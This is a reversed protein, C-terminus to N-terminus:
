QQRSGSLLEQRQDISDIKIESKVILKVPFDTAIQLRHLPSNGQRRFVAMDLNRGQDNGPLIVSLSLDLRQSAPQSTDLVYGADSATKGRYM